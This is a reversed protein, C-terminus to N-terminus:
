WFGPGYGAMSFHRGEIHLSFFLPIRPCGNQIVNSAAHRNHLLICYMLLFLLTKGNAIVDHAQSEKM